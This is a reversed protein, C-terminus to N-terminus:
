STSRKWPMSSTLPEVGNHEVMDYNGQKLGELLLFPLSLAATQFGENRRYVLKDAFAMRLVLRKDEIRDSGWREQPKRLFDLATQFTKDFDDVVTGCQSVKEAVARKQIELKRVQSEYTQILAPSDTEIIRNLFQEIKHDVRRSEEQLQAKNEGQQKEHQQWQTRIMDEVMAYLPPSPELGKLLNAFEGEIVGKAISKKYYSCEKNRCHYYAYKGSRGQAWCASMPQGCHYCVVFGRLPFDSSLGKRAPAKAQGKLRLQIRQWKEFTILPEHKGPLLTIDWETHDIYGAYLVRELMEQIKQYHVRGKCDKPFAACSELYHLIETQTEFRGCAYSELAEKVITAIPEDRVLIKGHGEIREYRYGIPEQFVWYGNLMRSRM